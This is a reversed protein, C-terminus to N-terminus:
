ISEEDVSRRQWVLPLFGPTFQDRHRWLFFGVLIPGFLLAFSELLRWPDQLELLLNRWDFIVSGMSLVWFYCCYIYLMLVWRKRAFFGFSLFFLASAVILIIALAGDISVMKEQFVVLYWPIFLVFLAFFGIGLVFAFLRLLHQELLLKDFKLYKM